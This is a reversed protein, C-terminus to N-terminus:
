SEEETVTPPQLVLGILWALIATIVLLDIM